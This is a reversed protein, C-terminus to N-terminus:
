HGKRKEAGNSTLPSIMGPRLKAQPADALAKAAVDFLEDTECHAKGGLVRWHLPWRELTRKSVHFFYRTVLEAAVSRTVRPPLDALLAGYERM